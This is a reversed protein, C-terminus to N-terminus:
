TEHNLASTAFFLLERSQKFDLGRSGGMFGMRFRLM